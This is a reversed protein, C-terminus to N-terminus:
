ERFELKYLSYFRRLILPLSLVFEILLFYSLMTVIKVFLCKVMEIMEQSLINLAFNELDPANLQTLFILCISIISMIIAFSIQTFIEKIYVVKDENKVKRSKQLSVKSFNFNEDQYLDLEQCIKDLEAKEKKGIDYVLTLLSFLLGTFISLSSILLDFFSVDIRVGILVLLISIIVPTFLFLIYDGLLPKSKATNRKAGYNYFTNIYDHVINSFSIRELVSM